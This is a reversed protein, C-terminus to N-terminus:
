PLRLLPKGFHRKRRPRPGFVVLGFYYASAVGFFILLALCMGFDLWQWKRDIVTFSPDSPDIWVEIPTKSEAATLLMAGHRATEDFLGIRRGKLSRGEWEYSYIADVNTWRSSPSIKVSEVMAPVKVGARTKWYGKCGEIAGVAGLVSLVVGICGFFFSLVPGTRVRGQRKQLKLNM